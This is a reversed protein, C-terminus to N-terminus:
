AKFGLMGKRVCLAMKTVGREVGKTGKCAKAVSIFKEVVKKQKPRLNEPAGIWPALRGRFYYGGRKWPNRAMQVPAGAYALLTM